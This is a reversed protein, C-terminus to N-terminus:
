KQETRWIKFNRLNPGRSAVLAELEAEPLTVLSSVDVSSDKQLPEICKNQFLGVVDRWNQQEESQVTSAGYFGITAVTCALARVGLSAKM